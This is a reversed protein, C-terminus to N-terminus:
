PAEDRHDWDPGSFDVARRISDHRTSRALDLSNDLAQWAAETMGLEVARRNFATGFPENSLAQSPLAPADPLASLAALVESEVSRGNSEARRKLRAKVDDPIDKILLQAM